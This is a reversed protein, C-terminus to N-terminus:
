RLTQLMVTLLREIERRWSTISLSSLHNTLRLVLLRVLLVLLPYLTAAPSVFSLPNSPRIRMRMRAAPM